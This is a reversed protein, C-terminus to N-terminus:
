LDEIFRKIENYINNGIDISDLKEIMEKRTFEKVM